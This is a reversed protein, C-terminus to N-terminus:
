CCAAPPLYPATQFEIGGSVANCTIKQPTIATCAIAPAPSLPVQRGLGLYPGDIRVGKHHAGTGPDDLAYFHESGYEMGLNMAGNIRDLSSANTSERKQWRLM